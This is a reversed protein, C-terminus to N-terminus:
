AAIACHAFIQQYLYLSNIGAFKREYYPVISACYDLRLVEAAILEVSEVRHPQTAALLGGWSVNKISLLGDIIYIEGSKLLRDVILLAAITYPDNPFINSQCVNGLRVLLTRAILKGVLDLTLVESALHWSAIISKYIEFGAQVPSDTLRLQNKLNSGIGICQGVQYLYNEQLAIQTDHLVSLLLKLLKPEFIASLRLKAQKDFKEIQPKFFGNIDGGVPNSLPLKPLPQQCEGFVSPVVYEMSVIHTHPKSLTISKVNSNHSQNISLNESSRSTVNPSRTFQPLLTLHAARHPLDYIAKSNHRPRRHMTPFLLIFIYSSRAQTLNNSARDLSAKKTV